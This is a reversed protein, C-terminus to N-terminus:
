DEKCAATHTKLHNYCFATQKTGGKSFTSTCYKPMDLIRSIDPNQQLQGNVYAATHRLRVTRFASNCTDSHEEFGVLVSM